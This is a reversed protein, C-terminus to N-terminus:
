QRVDFSVYVFVIKEIEDIGSLDYVGDAFVVRESLGHRTVAIWRNNPLIEPNWNKRVWNLAEKDM